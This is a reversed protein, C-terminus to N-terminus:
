GGGGGLSFFLYFIFLFTCSSVVTCVKYATYLVQQVGAIAQIKKNKKFQKVVHKVADQQLKPCPLKRCHSLFAKYLARGPIPDDDDDDDDTLYVFANPLLFFFFFSM